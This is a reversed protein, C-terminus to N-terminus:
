AFEEEDYWTPSASSSIILGRGGGWGVRCPWCNCGMVLREFRREFRVQAELGGWQWASLTRDWVSTLLEIVLQECLWRLYILATAAGLSSSWVRAGRQRGADTVEASLGKVASNSAPTPTSGIAKLNNAQRAVEDPAQLINPSSNM